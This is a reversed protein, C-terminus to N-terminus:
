KRYVPQSILSRLRTWFPVPDNRDYVAFVGDRLYSALLEARGFGLTAWHYRADRLVDVWYVGSRWAGVGDATGRTRYTYDIWPFSLGCKVALATSLNHRVNIELLRYEGDAGKKFEVCAFGDMGAAQLLKRGLPIVNPLLVSRLACPSGYHPPSDRLKQVTFEVIPLGDVYFAIYNAGNTPPGSVFEQITVDLSHQKVKRWATRLQRESTVSFMKTRFVEVFLHSQVPKVLCPYGITRAYKLAQELSDPRRTVPCSVGCSEALEITRDKHIALDVIRPDPCAVNVSESLESKGRAIAVLAADSAPMLVGGRHHACVASLREHFAQPEGTPHPLLVTERVYKSTQGFDEPDYTLSVIPVGKSGLARIVGLGM